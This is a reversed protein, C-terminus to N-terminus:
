AARRVPASERVMPLGGHALLGRLTEGAGADCRIECGDGLARLDPLANRWEVACTAPEDRGLSLLWGMPNGCLRLRAHGRAAIRHEIDPLCDGGLLAGDGTLLAWEDSCATSVAAIDIVEGSRDRVALWLRWDPGGPEFRNGQDFLSVPGVAIGFSARLEMLVRGQVGMVELRRLDRLEWRSHAMMEILDHAM